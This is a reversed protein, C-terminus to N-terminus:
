LASIREEAGVDPLERRGTVACARCERACVCVSVYM